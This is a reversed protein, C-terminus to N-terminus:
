LKTILNAEAQLKQIARLKLGVRQSLNRDPYELLNKALMIKGQALKEGAYRTLSPLITIPYLGKEEVFHELSGGRPYRWSIIRLGSCAAYKVAQSTCRTNTVLWPQHFHRHGPTEQWKKQLDLFRAWTYLVVKLDSRLGSSNHYKCEIMFHKDQKQAIIDIEHNICYGQIQRGVQTRYGYEELIAAVYREFPFGTPGLAMIARKLNYRAALAPNEKKLCQTVQKLIEASSAGPGINKIVQRCTEETLTLKAGSRKISRYLKEESFKEKQGSAKIIDM